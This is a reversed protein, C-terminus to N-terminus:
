IITLSKITQPMNKSQIIASIVAIGAIKCQTLLSINQETIGGIAVLPKTINHKNLQHILGIGVAPAADDKSSTPFIPGVGLYDVKELSQSKLAQELNNISLGLIFPKSIKEQALKIDLDTQGLHIGDANIALALALNDNIIFPVQYHRCLDRCKLALKKQEQPSKELSFVGKDRFQFCPIGNALAQELSNLLQQAPDGALHRYDQSGAIFYLRLYKEIDNM